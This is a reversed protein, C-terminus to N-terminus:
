FEIKVNFIEAFQEFDINLEECKEKLKLKIDDIHEDYQEVIYKVTSADVTKEEDTKSKTSSSTQTTSSSTHTATGGSTHTTGSTSSGYRGCYYDDWDDDDWYGQHSNNVTTTSKSKWTPHELEEFYKADDDDSPKKYTGDEQRVWAYSREKYPLKFERTGLKELLAVGMGCAHDVDEIVIYETSMHANYGGNGFNMCIVDTKQRIQSVDTFPESRFSTLGWEKCVDKIENEFFEKSFLTVGSSAWAARNLDPSDWGIVYGVDNFWEKNLQKSGLMGVEEELFFCAKIKEAYKFLSLSILVGAKDDAGIGMGDIYMEHKNNKIRTKLPLASASQAFVRQKDQVTDLHSTVCPYFEGEELTGKTLYVNGYNDFEYKIGNRRAWLIIFTVMRYEEKSATPVSMVDKIFDEDLYECGWESKTEIEKTEEETVNTTETNTTGDDVATTDIENTEQTSTNATEVSEVSQTGNENKIESNEM